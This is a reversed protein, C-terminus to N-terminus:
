VPGADRRAAREDAPLAPQHGREGATELQVYGRVLTDAAPQVLVLDPVAGPRDRVRRGDIGNYTKAEPVALPIYKATPDTPCRRCAPDCLGPLPDTFKKIGGPTIYGSGAATLNIATVGGASVTATAARRATGTPDTITVTPASTYGAGPHGRHDVHDGAHGDRHRRDGGNIPDFLTGDRIVVNPAHSYGSGPQGGRDATITARRDPGLSSPTRRAQVGNPDDPMDFDVTPMTYGSGPVLSRRVADVGGYATATANTLPVVASTDIVSAAFSYTRTQSFIPFDTM